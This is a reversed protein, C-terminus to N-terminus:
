AHDTGKGKGTGKGPDGARHPQLNNAIRKAGIDITKTLTKQNFSNVLEITAEDQLVDGYHDLDKQHLVATKLAPPANPNSKITIVDVRKQVLRQTSELHARVPDFLEGITPQLAQNAECIREIYRIVTELHFGTCYATRFEEQAARQKPDQNLRDFTVQGHLDFLAPAETAKSYPQVPWKTRNVFTNGQEDFHTLFEPLPAATTQEAQSVDGPTVGEIAALAARLIAAVSAQQTSSEAAPPPNAPPPNGAADSDNAM